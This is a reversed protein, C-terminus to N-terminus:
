KVKTATGKKRTTQGVIAYDFTYQNNTSNLIRIHVAKEEAMNKPNLKKVIYECDNIWRISSTDAKGRFYDIEITDNRIFTTTELETGVLAEFTFTGTKFNTCNKEKQQCAIFSGLLIFVLFIHM